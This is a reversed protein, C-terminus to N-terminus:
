RIFVIKAVASGPNETAYVRNSSAFVLYVGTTVRRGNYDTGQWVYQGGNAMGESVLKGSLDTIKVRADRALGRIAVPGAYGPEVPNPFVEVASTFGEEAATADSRYAIIGLETGFYVTGSVPDIAIAKVIDDLLPSNGRDFRLLQERGDESLLYAGGNTGVWKRNAGDIAITRVEETALVYAGFGDDSETAPRTGACYEEDFVEAGCGFVVVGEATGIWVQGDLDVAISRTQNTELESNSSQITRCRDDSPDMPTGNTDIVTIGGDAGARHVVWVFGFDDVAIDIALNIGCSQGLAAWDGEPSRVSVIGNDAARSVAVYTYGQADTATGAARIRGPGADPALQLSSNTEDFLTFTGAADRAVLGEFFSSFYHVQHVPDYDVDIIAAVDDDGVFTEGDRGRLAAVNDRSYFTWQGDTYQYFGGFDFTPTGNEDIQGPAVWLSTGDHTMRYVRDTPPGPYNLSRCDGDVATLYRVFTADDGLWIRGAEDEIAINTFYACDPLSDVVGATEQLAVILRDACNTTTCRYGALLQGPGGSLYALRNAAPPAAYHLLATDGALRYVDDDVGFYLADRWVTASGTAYDGPLGTEPGLLSWTGFDNLNVGRLPVAYLGEPTGAYLMGDRTAVSNVSIGTFTTFTFTLDDLSLASVGYGAALYILNDAGFALDYIRKDGNFNFNDIQRLTTFRGNRYLDITSNEYIILLTETPAHYRLFAIRGGGLGETRTLSSISLDEKDLFFLLNGTTYIIETASQTVYAGTGRSQLSTWRGLTDAQARLVTATLLM